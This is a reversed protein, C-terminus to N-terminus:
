ASGELSPEFRRADGDAIRLFLARGRLARFARAEIGTMWAQLGLELVTDFLVRRHGEDLHACVDDFLLLLPRRAAQLRATALLLAMLLVKQQGTSCLEAALGTATHTVALDCRHPGEAAGGTEADQARGRALAARFRQEAELAPMAGIWTEVRGTLALRCAPFPGFDERLLPSLREALDRRAAAVAVGTEAMGDELADIWARDHRPEKLLRARQRLAREYAGVRRGHLPDRAGVLRDLLRRRPAAADRLLGDMAPTLWIMSLHDALAAPGPASRGDIRVVRRDHDGEPDAGTGLRLSGSPTALSAAVAWPRRDGRRALDSMRAGRLGRGPALYSVAELLNTKGSGNDGVLVVPRREVGLRLEDWNRFATLALSTLAVSSLLSEDEGGDHLERRALAM